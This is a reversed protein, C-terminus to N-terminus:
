VLSYSKYYADADFMNTFVPFYSFFFM